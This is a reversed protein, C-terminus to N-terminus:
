DSFDADLVVEFTYDPYAKQSEEVINAYISQRDKAIFDIIVDFRIHKIKEDLYFGHMQLVHEHNMVIRRINEEVEHAHNNKTNKAYIGVASLIINHKRYVRNTIERTMNDITEASTTDPVEIHVSGIMRDPGYDNLILDYAGEVGDVSCITEKLEASLHADIREGLIQSLTNNLMEIGSKIIFISIIVGLYAELSIKTFTFLIAAVVTSASIIADMSADQGSDILSDSHVSKGVKKFYHGLLLKVVVAVAVIIISPISYEPTEPNIIKKISEVFSTIGAYLVIVAIITTSLYEIRGYGYPHKKDAPKNSLKTGIITIVSSLADSLNNVADLVIAISNSLFGVFAKFLSLFVNTIIGIISTRIIVQNRNM